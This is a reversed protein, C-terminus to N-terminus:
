TNIINNLENNIATFDKDSSEIDSVLKDMDVNSDTIISELITNIAKDADTYHQVEEWESETYVEWGEPIGNVGRISEHDFEANDPIVFTGQSAVNLVWEKSLSTDWSTWGIKIFALSTCNKFTQLLTSGGAITKIFSLDASKIKNSTVFTGYLSYTATTEAKIIPIETYSGGNSFYRYCNSVLTKAPLEKPLRTNNNCGYLLMNYCYPALETAKLILDGADLLRGSILMNQFCRTYGALSYNVAADDGFIMSMIDGSVKYNYEKDQDSTIKGIGHTSDITPNMCKVLLKDGANLVPSYTEPQWDQWTLGLDTSCQFTNTGRTNLLKVGDNLAEFTLYDNPNIETDWEIWEGENYAYIDVPIGKIRQYFEEVSTPENGAGFMLTLDYIQCEIYGKWGTLRTGTGDDMFLWGPRDYLRSVITEKISRDSSVPLKDNYNSCAFWQLINGGNAEDIQYVRRALYIHSLDIAGKNDGYMDNYKFRYGNKSQVNNYGVEYGYGYPKPTDQPSDFSLCGNVGQNWYVRNQKKPAQNAMMILRKFSSSM